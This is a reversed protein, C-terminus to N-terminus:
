ERTLDISQSERESNKWSSLKWKVFSNIVSVIRWASILGCLDIVM